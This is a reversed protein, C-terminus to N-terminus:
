NRGTRLASSTGFWVMLAAPILLALWVTAGFFAALGLLVLILSGGASKKLDASM